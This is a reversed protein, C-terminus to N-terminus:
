ERRRTRERDHDGTGGRLEATRASLRVWALGAFGSEAITMGILAGPAGMRSSLPLGIALAVVATVVRVRLIWGSQGGARLAALAGASAAVAGTFLTLAPLVPRALEWTEPFLTPGVSPLLLYALCGGVSAALALGASLVIAFRLLAAGSTRVRVSEPVGLTTGGMLLVSVPGVLAQAARWRGLEEASATVLLAYSLLYYVGSNVVFEGALRQCLAANARLWRWCRNVAPPVGLRRGLLLASLCGSVAWIAFLVTPSGRGLLGAATSLGLQVGVWFVDCEAALRADGQAFAVHRTADQYQLVPLAAAAILFMSRGPPYLLGALVFFAAAVAGTAVAAGVPPGFVAGDHRQRGSYLILTAVSFSSRTLQTVLLYATVTVSFDAFERRDATALIFLALFFNSGSSAAQGALTWASRGLLPHRLWRALM